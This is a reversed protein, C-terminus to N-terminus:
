GLEPLLTLSGLAAAAVGWCHLVLVAGMLNSRRALQRIEDATV